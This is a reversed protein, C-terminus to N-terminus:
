PTDNSVAPHSRSHAVSLRQMTALMTEGKMPGSNGSHVTVQHPGIGQRRYIDELLAAAREASEGDFVQWGVVKRSFIDVFLYPRFYLGPVQTPLYAIDWCCIQDPQTALLARPKSHKQPVHELRRHALQDPPIHRGGVHLATKGAELWRQVTRAALGIVACALHQQAGASCAEDIMQLATTRQALTSV